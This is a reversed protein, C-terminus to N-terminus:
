NGAQTTAADRRKGPRDRLVPGFADGRHENRWKTLLAKQDPTLLDEIKKWGDQIAQRKEQPAKAAALKDRADKLVLDIRTKQDDTLKLQDRLEQLAAFADRKERMAKLEKRQADTLVTTRIKEMADQWIKLRAPGDPATQADAQAQKRIEEIQAKQKEDLKLQEFPIGPGDPRPGDPRRPPMARLKDMQEKTLVDSLQKMLNDHLEQRSATLKAMEQGATRMKETDNAKQADELRARAARMEDGHEKGWNALAQRHTEVIQDVQKQQQENLNLGKLDAQLREIDAKLRDVPRDGPPPRFPASAAVQAGTAAVITLLVACATLMAMM